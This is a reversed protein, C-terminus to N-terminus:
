KHVNQNCTKIFFPWDPRSITSCVPFTRHALPNVMLQLYIDHIFGNSVSDMSLIPIKSDFIHLGKMFNQAIFNVKPISDFHPSITCQWASWVVNLPRTFTVQGCVLFHHNVKSVICWSVNCRLSTNVKRSHYLFSFTVMLCTWSPFKITFCLKRYNYHFFLKLNLFWPCHSLMFVTSEFAEEM